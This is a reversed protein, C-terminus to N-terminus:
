RFPSRAAGAATSSPPFMDPSVFVGRPTGGVAAASITQVAALTAVVSFSVALSVLRRLVCCCPEKGSAVTEPLAKDTPEHSWDEECAFFRLFARRQLTDHDRITGRLMPYRDELADLITAITIPAAVDLTVESGVHALTRLHPPLIVRIM